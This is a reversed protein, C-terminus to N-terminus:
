DEDKVLEPHLEGESKAVMVAAAADGVINPIVRAMNLIRDIGALLGITELPLNVANLVITLMVLGSGPIGATGVSALVATVMVMIQQTVSLHIGFVQSAFVVAVAEYIATGNMNMVAGFPIVFDAIKDSVGLKKTCKLNLPITAVSSCTAFVFLMADKMTSFFKKPSIGGYVGVMLGGQVFITFLFCTIYCAGITKLYPLMIDLGYKGVINAMLGFVGYPTFKLVINTIEKWAETWARFFNLVPEGKEGLAILAFGLLLSFFIIQLLNQTSLANFPNTPVINMLTDVISPVEGATYSVDAPMTFGAGIQMLNSLVLGIAVAVATGGLFIAITKGGIKGLTKFDKVDAASCILLGLVLPAVVMTLLRTLLTGLFALASAKPGLVLGTIIGIVFGIMIKTFLGMDAWKKMLTKM